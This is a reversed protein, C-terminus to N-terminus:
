ATNGPNLLDINSKWGISLLDHYDKNGHSPNKFMYWAEQVGDAEAGDQGLAGYCLNYFLTQMNYSHMTKIFERVM